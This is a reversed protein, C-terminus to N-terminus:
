DDRRCYGSNSDRNVSRYNNYDYNGYSYNEIYKKKEDRKWWEKREQEESFENNVWRGAGLSNDRVGSNDQPM